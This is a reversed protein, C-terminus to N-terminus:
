GRFVETRDFSRRLALYEHRDLKPPAESLVRQAQAAQGYLLDIALLAMSKAPNVAALVHDHVHYESSHPSGTTGGSRPHVIPMLMGLDGMDTSGSQHKAVGM